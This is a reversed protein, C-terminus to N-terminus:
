CIKLILRYNKVNIRAIKRDLIVNVNNQAYFDKAKSFVQEPAIEKALMAAIIGKAKGVNVDM